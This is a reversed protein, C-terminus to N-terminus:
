YTTTCVYQLPQVFFPTTAEFMNHQGAVSDAVKISAKMVAELLSYLLLTNLGLSQSSVPKSSASRLSSNVLPCVDYVAGPV